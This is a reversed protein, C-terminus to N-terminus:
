IHYTTVNREKLVELVKSLRTDHEEESSGSILIDDIFNNVGKCKILIRELMTASTVGFM